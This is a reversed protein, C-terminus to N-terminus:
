FKQYRAKEIRFLFIPLANRNPAKDKATTGREIPKRPYIARPFRNQGESGPTTFRSITVLRKGAHDVHGKTKMNTEPNSEV